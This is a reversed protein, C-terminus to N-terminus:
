KEELDHFQLGDKTMTVSEIWHTGYRIRITKGEKLWGLCQRALERDPFKRRFRTM